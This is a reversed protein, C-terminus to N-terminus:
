GTSDSLDLIIARGTLTSVVRFGGLEGGNSIALQHRTREFAGTFVNSRSWMIRRQKREPRSVEPEPRHTETVNDRPHLQRHQDFGIVRPGHISLASTAAHCANKKM